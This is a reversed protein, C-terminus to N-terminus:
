LGNNNLELEKIKKKCTVYDSVVDKIFSWSNHLDTESGPVRYYEMPALDDVLERLKTHFKEYRKLRAM